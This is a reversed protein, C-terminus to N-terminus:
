CGISLDCVLQHIYTSVASSFTAAFHRSFPMGVKSSEEDIMFSLSVVIFTSEENDSCASMAVFSIFSNTSIQIM